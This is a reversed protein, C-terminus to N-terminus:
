DVLNPPRYDEHVDHPLLVYIYTNMYSYAIKIKLKM